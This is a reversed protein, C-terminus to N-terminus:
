AMRERNHQIERGATDISKGRVISIPVCQRARELDNLLRPPCGLEAMDQLWSLKDHHSQTRSRVKGFNHVPTNFTYVANARRQTQIHLARKSPMTCPVCM